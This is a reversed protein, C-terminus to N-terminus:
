LSPPHFVFSAFAYSYGNCYLALAVPQSFKFLHPLSFSEPLVCELLDTRETSVSKHTDSNNNAKNLQKKLYCKGNCHLQPKNRNECLNSAVYEKNIEYWTLIGLKVLSQCSLSLMLLISILRFV